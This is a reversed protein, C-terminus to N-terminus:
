VMGYLKSLMNLILGGLSGYISNMCPFCRTCRQKWRISILLAAAHDCTRALLCLPLILEPQYGAVQVVARYANGPACSKKGHNKTNEKLYARVHLMLLLSLDFFRAHFINGRYGLM